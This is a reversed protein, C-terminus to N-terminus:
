LFAILDEPRVRIRGRHLNVLVMDGDFAPESVNSEGGEPLMKVRLGPVIEVGNRTKKQLIRPERGAAVRCDPCVGKVIYGHQTPILGWGTNGNLTVKNMAAYLETFHDVDVFQHVGCACRLEYHEAM